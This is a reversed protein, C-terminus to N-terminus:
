NAARLEDYRVTRTLQAPKDGDPLVRAPVGDIEAYGIVMTNVRAAAARGALDFERGENLWLRRETLGSFWRTRGLGKPDDAEVVDAPVWGYGPVFYEAWCRYGPDVDKGENVDKLRYGMQLRAPIGRARALAIFLSHMDTCCGGGHAM